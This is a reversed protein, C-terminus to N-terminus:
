GNPEVIQIFVAKRLQIAGLRKVFHRGSLRSSSFPGFAAFIEGQILFNVFGFVKDFGM